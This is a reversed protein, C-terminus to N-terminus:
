PIIPLACCIALCPYVTRVEHQLVPVFLLTGNPSICPEDYSYWDIGKPFQSHKSIAYCKPNRERHLIYIFRLRLLLLHNYRGHTGTGPSVKSGETGCLQRCPSKVPKPYLQPFFNFLPISKAQPVTNQSFRFTSFEIPSATCHGISPM